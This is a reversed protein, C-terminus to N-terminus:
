GRLAVIQGGDVVITAGSIYGGAKSVLLLLPGDLDGDRGFRGSPIDRLKAKGEDSALYDANIETVFWGPAIANVRVGRFTWELALAKTLQVVGAKAVAYAAVGKSVGFGLVSAINVIAGQKKAALMRRAAEQAWLFVSDLNTSLVSRWKEETMDLARDAHAIGANNILITVTGFAQEAEDFARTMAARDTVDAEIVTAKGGAAEITSKLDALRDRRRAVLAVRAGNAALVQAFRRGLGSSAGTVLAVEGTLDFIDNAKM